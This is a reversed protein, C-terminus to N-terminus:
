KDGKGALITALRQELKELAAKAAATKEAAAREDALVGALTAQLMAMETSERTAKDNGAKLGEQAASLSKNADKIVEAAYTAAPTKPLAEVRDRAKQYKEMTAPQVGGAEDAAVGTQVCVALILPVLLVSLPKTM